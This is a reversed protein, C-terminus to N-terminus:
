RGPQRRRKLLSVLALLGWPLTGSGAGSCGHVRTGSAEAASMPADPAPESRAQCLADGAEVFTVDELCRRAPRQDHGVEIEVVPDYANGSADVGALHVSYVRPEAVNGQRESRLCVGEDTLIVDDLTSGDGTADEPQSSEASLVVLQPAPDCVDTVLATFERDIQLVAYDHNPPWLCVPGSYAFDTLTPPTTDVVDVEIVDVDRGGCADTVSLGIQHHGLPLELMLEPGTGIVTGGPLRLWSYGALPAGDPDFSSAASLTVTGGSPSSCEITSSGTIVATPKTNVVEIAVDRRDHALARDAVILALDHAGPETLTVTVGDSVRSVSPLRM